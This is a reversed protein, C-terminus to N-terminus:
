KSSGVVAGALVWFTMYAVKGIEGAAIWFNIAHFGLMGCAIMAWLLRDEDVATTANKVAVVLVAVIGTVFLVLGPIGTGVLFSLYVNHMSVARSVGYNEAVLSFNMGGIGFLPNTIGIELAAIYQQVRISLNGTNILPVAQLVSVIMESDTHSLAGSGGTTGPVASPEPAEGSSTRSLFLFCSLLGAGITAAYGRAYDYMGIRAEDSYLHTYVLSGFILLVVLLFAAWGSDTASVRLLFVSGTVFGLGLVQQWRAGNVIREVTIPMVLLLLAILIRSIGAFGGAYTSAMVAVPGIYFTEFGYGSAEGLYSLGFSGRNLVEAIAFLMQGGVAILLSYVTTRIGVYRGVAMAVGFLLLHRIQAVSFFLGMVTSPGDGVVAAIASWVVLGALAYGAIRESRGRPLTLHSSAWLVLLIALPVAVVDILMIELKYAGLQGGREVGVIPLDAQFTCLVFVASCLGELLNDTLVLGVGYVVGAFAVVALLPLGTSLTVVPVGVVLLATLSLASLLVGRKTVTNPPESFFSLLSNRVVTYSM